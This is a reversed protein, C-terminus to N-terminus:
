SPPAATASGRRDARDAGRAPRKVLGELKRKGTRKLARTVNRDGAALRLESPEAGRPVKVRVLADGGSVLDARNSLVKIRPPQRHEPRERRGARRRCRSRSGILGAVLRTMRLVGGERRRPPSDAGERAARLDRSSGGVAIKYCGRTAVWRSRKTSWHQFSRRDLRVMVNSRRAPPSPSSAFARSSARRSATASRSASTSRPSRPASATAPTARAQVSGAGQRPPLPRSSLNSYRFDHLLARLRVPVAAQDEQADFWRYGVLLGESYVAKGDVGPYQEATRTPMDDLSRPFTQPLKGSPNAEGYLISAIANGNENGPYFADLVAKVDGLWPMAVPAGANLVVVTNENAGAVAAIM